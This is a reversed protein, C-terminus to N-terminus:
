VFYHPFNAAFRSFKCLAHELMIPSFRMMGKEECSLENELYRHLGVFADSVEHKRLRDYKTGHSQRLLSLEQLGSIAGAQIIAIIDGMEAATPQQVVGADVYDSVLLHATLAGFLPFAKEKSSPRQARTLIDFVEMHTAKPEDVSRLLWETHEPARSADDYKSVNDALETTRKPQAQGGYCDDIVYQRTPVSAIEGLFARADSFLQHGDVFESHYTVGRWLLMSFFGERTRLHEPSLPSNPGNEIDRYSKAGHRFPLRHDTNANIWELIARGEGGVADPVATPGSPDTPLLRAALRLFNLLHEPHAEGPGPSRVNPPLNVLKPHESVRKYAADLAQMQQWEASGQQAVAHSELLHQWEALEDVEVTTKRARQGLLENQPSRYVQWVRDLYLPGYGLKEVLHTVFRASVEPNKKSPFRLWCKVCDGALQALKEPMEERTARYSQLVYTRDTDPIHDAARIHQPKRLGHCDYIAKVLKTIWEEAPEQPAPAGEKLEALQTAAARACPMFQCDFWEQAVSHASMVRARGYAQLLSSVEACETLDGIFEFARGVEFAAGRGLPKEAILHLSNDLATIMPATDQDLKKLKMMTEVCGTAAATERSLSHLSFVDM